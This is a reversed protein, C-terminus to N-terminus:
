MCMTSHMSAALLLNRPRATLFCVCFGCVCHCPLATDNVEHYEREAGGTCALSHIQATGYRFCGSRASSAKTSPWSSYFEWRARSMRRCACYLVFVSCNAASLAEPYHAQCCRCCDRFCLRDCCEFQPPDVDVVRRQQKPSLTWQYGQARPLCRPDSLSTSSTSRLSACNYFSRAHPTHQQPPQSYHESPAQLSIMYSRPSGLWSTCLRM